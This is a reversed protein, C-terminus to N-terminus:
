YEEISVKDWDIGGRLMLFEMLIKFSSLEYKIDFPFKDSRSEEVQRQLFAKMEKQHVEVLSLLIFPIDIVEIATKEENLFSFYFFLEEGEESVTSGRFLCDSLQSRIQWMDQQHPSPLVLKLSIEKVEYSKAEWLLNMTGSKNLQSFLRHVFAEYYNAALNSILQTEHKARKLLQEIPPVRTEKLSAARNARAQQFPEKGLAYTAPSQSIPTNLLPNM